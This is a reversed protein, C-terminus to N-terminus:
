AACRVHGVIGGRTDHVPADAFPLLPPPLLAPLADLHQLLRLVAPHQARGAGDAVKVAFGIQQDRIAVTHVGEAGVKAIVNGDTARMLATDFRDTGGVWFPEGGMADFIAAPAPEDLAAVAFRAYAQAMQELTLIFVPVGCGDTAIDLAGDPVGTWRSLGSRILVQWPHQPQDYGATPWGRSQAAAMMATHKGSCNNHARTPAAHSERLLQAGRTSLPEHPGCALDGVALGISELMAHALGVHEPEGGHSACALALERRGWGTAAWGGSAVFPHVQLPKACSRWPSIATPDGSALLLRDSRDVAAAHVVHRAEVTAGRTVVVDLSVRHTM